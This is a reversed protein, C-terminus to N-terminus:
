PKRHSLWKLKMYDGPSTAARNDPTVLNFQIIAGDYGPTGTLQIEYDHFQGDSIIPVQKEMISGDFRTWQLRVFKMNDAKFAARLYMVPVEPSKYFVAPGYLGAGEDLRVRWGDTSNFPLGSDLNPQMYYWQQRDKTFEYHPLPSAALPRLKEYVYQRIQGTTGVMVAQMFEIIIDRDLVEWRNPAMSGTEFDYEGGTHKNGEFNANLLFHDPTWMGVALGDDTELAAWRESGFFWVQEASGKPGPLDFRTLPGDTYPETGTYSVARHFPANLIVGGLNQGRALLDFPDTRANIFRHKLVLGIGSLEVTSEVRCECPVNKMAWQLPIGTFTVKNGDRKWTTVKSGYGYVDGTQIPDWGMDKWVPHTTTGPPNYPIPWSYFSYQIQRGLDYNNVLNTKSGAASLYTVSGGYDMNLGVRIVGNDLYVMQSPIEVPPSAPATSGGPMVHSGAPRAKINLYNRTNNDKKTFAGLDEFLGRCGTLLALALLGVCYPLKRM